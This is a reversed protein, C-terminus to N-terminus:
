LYVTSAFQWLAVWQLRYLMALQGGAVRSCCAGPQSWTGGLCRPQLHRGLHFRPWFLFGTNIPELIKTSSHFYRSFNPLLCWRKTKKSGGLFHLFFWGHFLEVKWSNLPDEERLHLMPCLVLIMSNSDCVPGFAEHSRINHWNKICFYGRYGSKVAIYLTLIM